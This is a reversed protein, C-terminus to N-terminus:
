HKRSFWAIALSAATSLSVVGGAFKFRFKKLSDIEIDQQKLHEKIEGIDKAMSITREDIRGLMVQTNDM